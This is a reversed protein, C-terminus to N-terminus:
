LPLEGCQAGVLDGAAERELQAKSLRIEGSEVRAWSVSLGAPVLEPGLEAWGMHTQSTQFCGVEFFKKSKEGGYM